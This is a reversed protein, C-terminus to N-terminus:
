KGICFGAFIRGLIDDPTVHGLVSGLADLAERLDLATLEPQTLDSSDLLSDLIERARDIAEVHRANLALGTETALRHFCIENLRRRLEHIGAGTVASVSVAPQSPEPASGLDSKSRVILDPPRSLKLPPRSDTSDRVLVTLDSTEVSQLARDHMARGIEDRPNATEEIGAADILHIMGDPLVIEASLTDRTTGAHPSVIARDRGALRNLLTSKGANPRGVLAVRPEHSLRELRSSENLLRQLDDRVSRIRAIRESPDLFTVDEGSFDIEIEIRALIDALADLIPRLRRSLEGALLRRAASLQQENSAAIIAAVGEAETLNMRGNLCARATFEGPEAPRCGLRFLERLLMGALVPNGPLHYEILDEGSYSHPGVFRLVSAPVSLGSFALRCLEASGAGGSECGLKRAIADSEPGSTRIIIRAAAGVSSSVAAITDRPDM